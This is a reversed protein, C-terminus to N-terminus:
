DDDGGDEGKDGNAHCRLCNSFDAIGEERHKQDVEGQNHCTYCTWQTLTSPHCDRCGNADGHGM